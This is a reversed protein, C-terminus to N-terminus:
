HLDEYQNVSLLLLLSLVMTEYLAGVEIATLSEEYQNVSLLLLPLVM